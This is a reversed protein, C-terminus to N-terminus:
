KKWRRITSRSKNELEQLQLQQCTCQCLVNGQVLPGYCKKEQNLQPNRFCVASSTRKSLYLLEKHNSKTESSKKCSSFSEESSSLRNKDTGHWTGFRPCGILFVHRKDASYIQGLLTSAQFSLSKCDAPQRSSDVTHRRRCHQPWAPTPECGTVM